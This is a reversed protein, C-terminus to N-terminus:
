FISINLYPNLEIWYIGKIRCISEGNGVLHTRRMLSACIAIIDRCFIEVVVVYREFHHVFMIQLLLLLFYNRSKSVVKLTVHDERLTCVFSHIM